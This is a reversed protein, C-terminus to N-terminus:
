VSGPKESFNRITREWSFKLGTSRLDQSNKEQDKGKMWKFLETEIIDNLTRKVAVRVNKLRWSFFLPNMSSNIFVTTGTVELTLQLAPTLVVNENAKEM